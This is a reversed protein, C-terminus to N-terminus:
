IKIDRENFLKPIGTLRIINCRGKEMEYWNLFEPSLVFSYTFQNLTEKHNGRKKKKKM